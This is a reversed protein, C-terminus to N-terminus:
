TGGSEVRFLGGLFIGLEGPESDRNGVELFEKIRGMRHHRISLRGNIDAM